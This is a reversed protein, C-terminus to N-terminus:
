SLVASGQAIAGELAACGEDQKCKASPAVDEKGAAVHFSRSPDEARRKTVEYACPDLMTAREKIARQGLRRWTVKKELEHQRHQREVTYSAVSAM